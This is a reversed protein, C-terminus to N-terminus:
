GLWLKGESKSQETILSEYEIIPKNKLCQIMFFFMLPLGIVAMIRINMGDDYSFLTTLGLSGIIFLSFSFILMSCYTKYRNM